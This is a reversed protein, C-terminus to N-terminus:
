DTIRASSGDTSNLGAESRAESGVELGASPRYVVWVPRGAVEELGAEQPAGRSSGVASPVYVPEEGARSRSSAPVTFGTPVAAMRDPRLVSGGSGTLAGIGSGPSAPAAPRRTGLAPTASGVGIRNIRGATVIVPSDAEPRVRSGAASDVTPAGPDTETGRAEEWFRESPSADVDPGRRRLRALLGPPAAPLAGGVAGVALETMQWM